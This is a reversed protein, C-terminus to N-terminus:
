AALPAATDTLGAEALFRRAAEIAPLPSHTEVGDFRAALREGIAAEVTALAQSHRRPISRGCFVVARRLGLRDLEGPLAAVADPGCFTRFGPTSHQFRPTTM